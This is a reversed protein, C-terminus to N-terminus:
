WLLQPFSSRRSAIRDINPTEYGMLGDSYTRINSIGIDDGWLILINPKQQQALCNIGLFLFVITITHNIM